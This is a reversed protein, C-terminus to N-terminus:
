VTKRAFHAIGQANLRIDLDLLDWDEKGFGLSHNATFAKFYKRLKTECFNELGESKVGFGIADKVLQESFDLHLNLQAAANQLASLEGYHALYAIKAGSNFILKISKRAELPDFDVPSTSPFIFMGHRQLDPYCLGFSDGTFIAAIDPCYICVHHSAHGPTHFFSLEASGLYVSESNLVPKARQAAVPILTGYLRVFEDAGYVKRASEILRSPDVIHKVAKPHAIFMAEPCADILLGSGGAHDLHAHTVIVYKVDSPALGESRLAELLLPVARSTNNDIFAAQKGEILLYASAFKPWLYNCDITIVRM